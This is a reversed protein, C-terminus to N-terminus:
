ATAQNIAISGLRGYKHDAGTQQDGTVCEIDRVAEGHQPVQGGIRHPTHAGEAAVSTIPM